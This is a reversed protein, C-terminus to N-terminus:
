VQSRADEVSEGTTSQAGRRAKAGAKLTEWKERYKELTKQMKRNDKELREMHKTMESLQEELEHNKRVLEEENARGSGGGGGAGPLPSGGPMIRYSEALALASSQASAEFTHLRKSLKDLMDKLSKNELSLEEITNYLEKESHTRTIRRRAHVAGPAERADVFDDDDEDQPLVDGHTSAELRRKEKEAYSLINAYSMTHGTSPVVYFSDAATHGDRVLARMTAKSYIKSLDPDATASPSARARSQKTPSLTASPSSSSSSPVASEASPTAPEEQILPLGAFALPASIKNILSGFTNYFRTYGGEDRAPSATDVKPSASGGAAAAGQHHQSQQHQHQHQKNSAATAMPPVWTPRSSGSQRDIITQMKAKSADRKAQPDLNGPAQDNSVSPSLPQGRDKSRIGRASALNSAISSSMERPVYRRQQSALGPPQQAKAAAAQLADGAVADGDSSSSAKESAVKENNSSGSGGGDDARAHPVQEPPLKLIEALKRHHEELLKLTRLAEVSSTLSAANAFEGAALTHESIAVTTDASQRTAVAAARAHDHAKTLPSAEM